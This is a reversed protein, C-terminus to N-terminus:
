VLILGNFNQRVLFTFTFHVCCELIYSFTRFASVYKMIELHSNKTNKTPTGSGNSCSDDIGSEADGEHMSSESVSHFPLM